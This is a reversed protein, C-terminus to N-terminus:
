IGRVEHDREHRLDGAVFVGPRSAELHFPDRELPWRSRGQAQLLDRGTLVYGREDLQLWDGIPATLPAAGILVFLAETPLAAQGTPGDVLVMELWDDGRAESVRSETLVRIRPHQEIREVLYRSMKRELSDARVLM